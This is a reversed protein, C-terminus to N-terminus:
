WRVPPRSSPRRRERIYAKFEEADVNGVWAGAAARIGAISRAVQEPSPRRLPEVPTLTSLDAEVRDEGVNAAFDDEQVAGLDDGAHFGDVAPERDVRFREGNRVLRLPAAAAEDLLRDLEGGPEVEITKPESAM